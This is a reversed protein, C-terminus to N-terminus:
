GVSDLAEELAAAEEEEEEEEQEMAGCSEPEFQSFFPQDEDVWYEGREDVLYRKTEKEAEQLRLVFKADGGGGGGRVAGGKITVPMDVYEQQDEVSIWINLGYKTLGPASVPRACHVTRPDPQLDSLLNGFLVASGRRPYVEIGLRPFATGGLGFPLSNLYVFFTLYRLPYVAEVAGCPLLTGADHHLAFQQDGLYRVVQLPEVFHLHLGVFDAARQEIRRVVADQSKTLHFFTSTRESSIVKRKEGDETYSKCFSQPNCSVLRDLYDLESPSLFDEIVFINPERHVVHVTRRGFSLYQPDGHLLNDLRQPLKRKIQRKERNM